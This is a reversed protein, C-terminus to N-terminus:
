ASNLTRSWYGIPKASEEPYTSLKGDTHRKAKTSKYVTRSSLAARAPDKLFFQFLWM